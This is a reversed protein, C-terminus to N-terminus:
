VPFTIRYYDNVSDIYDLLETETNFMTDDENEMWGFLPEEDNSADNITIEFPKDGKFLWMTAGDALFAANGSDDYSGDGDGDVGIQGPSTISGFLAHTNLGSWSNGTGDYYFVEITNTFPTTIHYDSLPGNFSYTNSLNELGVHQCSDGGSGDGIEVHVCRNEDQCHYTGVTTPASGIMNKENNDRRRYITTCAPTMIHKDGNAEEVSMTVDGGRALFYYWGTDNTGTYTALDGAGINITDIVTGNIGTGEYFVDVSTNQSGPNWFYFTSNGYRSSYNAFMNSKLSASHIGNNSGSCHISFPKDCYYIYAPDLTTAYSTPTTSSSIYIQTGSIAGPLKRYVRTSTYPLAFSAVVTEVPRWENKGANRKYYRNDIKSLEAFQSAALWNYSRPQIVAGTDYPVILAGGDNIPYGGDNAADVFTSYWSTSSTPGAGNIDDEIWLGKRQVGPDLALSWDHAYKYVTSM